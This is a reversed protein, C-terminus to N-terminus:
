EGTLDEDSVWVWAQVYAGGSDSISVEAADDIECEGEVQYIERAKIRYAETAPSTDAATGPKPPAAQQRVVAAWVYARRHGVIVKAMDPGIEAERLWLLILRQADELARKYRKGDVYQTKLEDDFMARVQDSDLNPHASMIGHIAEEYTM